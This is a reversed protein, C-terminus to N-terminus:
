KVVMEVRRNLAQGEPKANNAIPSIPGIGIATMRSQAIGRAVLDAVVTAARRESLDVNYEYTGVNDTHGVIFVGVNPSIDLYQQLVDLVIESDPKLNATDFDFLVGDLVVSGTDELGKTLDELSGIGLKDTELAVSTIISQNIYRRGTGHHSGLSIMIHARTEGSTVIGSIIAFDDPVEPRIGRYASSEDNLLNNIFVGELGCDEPGECMFTIEADLAVFASRYNAFLAYTSVDEGAYRYKINTVAGEVSGLDLKKDGDSNVFAPGVIVDAKDFEVASYQVINFGPYRTLLPHDSSGDTDQQSFGATGILCFAISYRLISLHQQRM